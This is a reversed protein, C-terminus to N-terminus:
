VGRVASQIAAYEARQGSNLGLDPWRSALLAGQGQVLGDVQTALTAKAGSLKNSVVLARVRNALLTQQRPSPSATQVPTPSPAPMPPPLPSSPDTPAPTPVTPPAQATLVGLVFENGRPPLDITQMEQGEITSKYVLTNGVRTCTAHTAQERFHSGGAVPLYHYAGDDGTMAALLGPTNGNVDGVWWVALASGQDDSLVHFPTLLGYEPMPRPDRTGAVLSPALAKATAPIWSQVPAEGLAKCLAIRPGLDEGLGVACLYNVWAADRVPLAGGPPVQAHGGSRMGATLYAGSKTRCAKYFGAWYRLWGLAAEQLVADKNKVAWAHVGAVPLVHLPGYITSGAEDGMWTKESATFFALLGDRVPAGQWLGVVHGCLDINGSEGGNLNHALDAGLTEKYVESPLKQGNVVAQLEVTVHQEPHPTLM